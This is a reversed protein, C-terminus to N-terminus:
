PKQSLALLVFIVIGGIDRSNKSPLARNKVDRYAESRAL